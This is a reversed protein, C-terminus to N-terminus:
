QRVYTALAQTPVKGCGQSPRAPAPVFVDSEADAAAVDGRAPVAGSSCAALLAVAGLALRQVSASARM